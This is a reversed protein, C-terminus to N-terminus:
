PYKLSQSPMKWYDSATQCKLFRTTCSRPIQLSLDSHHICDTILFKTRLSFLLDNLYSSFYAPWVAWVASLSQHIIWCGHLRETALLELHRQGGAISLHDLSSTPVCRTGQGTVLSGNPCIASCGRRKCSSCFILIIYYSRLRSGGRVPYLNIANSNSGLSLTNTDSMIPYFGNGDVSPIALACIGGLWQFTSYCFMGEVNRV